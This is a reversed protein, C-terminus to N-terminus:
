FSVGMIGFEPVTSDDVYPVEPLINEPPPDLGTFGLHPESLIEDWKGDVLEYYRTTIAADIDFAAHIERALRNTSTRGQLKYLNAIEIKTYIEVMTKGALVLHLVMEFLQIRALTDLSDYIDQAVDVLHGWERLALKAEDYNRASYVFPAMSMSLM